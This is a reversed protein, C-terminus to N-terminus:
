WSDRKGGYGGRNGGDSREPRPRAEDVRITRSGLQAGNMGSMAAQGEDKTSMEVFAFGKSKGTYKDTIMNVSEVTGFESFAKRLDEETTEYSLNGVYMRMKERRKYAINRRDEFRQSVLGEHIESYVHNNDPV